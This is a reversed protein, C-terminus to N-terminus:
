NMSKSTTLDEQFALRAAGYLGAESGLAAKEVRTRGARFTFSRQQIERLMAPAFMDWAATVGGSLLYLPFNFIQVLAALGTGLASGMSEFVRVALPNGAVALRHVDESTLDDGLAMHRAMTAIATASAHKELCGANGCACPIGTPNVTIHGVEAAMGQSGHLVQGGIVIGGGIGTGLTLLVLDDVGRGAGMWKEGLAAANADNELIVPSGLRAGIEDRAAFNEFAPINPSSLVLGKEMEIFGALAVGIGALEDQPRGRRLTEIASVISSLIAERGGASNTAASVRDLVSGEPDVAAARFNTGGLDLGISYRAM